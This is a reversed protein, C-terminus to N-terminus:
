RMYAPEKVEDRLHIDGKVFFNGKDIHYSYIYTKGDPRSVQSIYVQTEQCGHHEALMKKIGSVNM